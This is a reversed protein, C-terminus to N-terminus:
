QRDGQAARDHAILKVADNGSGTIEGSPTPLTQDVIEPPKAGIEYFGLIRDTATNRLGNFWKGCGAAHNWREAIVGKRNTRMFVFDAWEADTMADRWEPRAIHAEGGNSFESQDRAGCYPCTIIFM